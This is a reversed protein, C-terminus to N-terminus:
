DTPLREDAGAESLAFSQDSGPLEGDPALRPKYGDRVKQYADVVDNGAGSWPKSAPPLERPADNGLEILGRERYSRRLASKSDYVRGDHQGQLDWLKDSIFNFGLPSRPGCSILPAACRKPVLAGDRYVYTERSM